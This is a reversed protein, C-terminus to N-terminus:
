LNLSLPDYDRRESQGSDQTSRLQEVLFHERARRLEEYRYRYEAEGTQHYKRRLEDLRKRFYPQVDM